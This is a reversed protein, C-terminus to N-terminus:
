YGRRIREITKGEDNLIYVPMNTVINMPRDKGYWAQLYVYSDRFGKVENGDDDVATIYDNLDHKMPDKDVDDLQKETLHSYKFSTIGSIIEWTSGFMGNVLMKLIM